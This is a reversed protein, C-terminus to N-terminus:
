SPILHTVPDPKPNERKYQEYQKQFCIFSLTLLLIMFAILIMITQIRTQKNMKELQEADKKSDGTPIFILRGM